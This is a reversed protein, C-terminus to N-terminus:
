AINDNGIKVMNKIIDCKNEYHKDWCQGNDLGQIIVM